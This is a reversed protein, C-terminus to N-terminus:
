VNEINLCEKENKSKETEENGATQKSVFGEEATIELKEHNVSTFKPSLPM